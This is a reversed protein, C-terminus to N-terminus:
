IRVKKQTKNFNSCENNICRIVLFEKDGLREPSMSNLCGCEPCRDNEGEKESEIQKNLDDISM